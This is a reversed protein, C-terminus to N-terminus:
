EGLTLREKLYRHAAFIMSSLISLLVTERIINSFMQNNRKYTAEMLDRKIYVMRNQHWTRLVSIAFIAVLEFQGVTADPDQQIESKSKNFPWLLWFVQLMPNKKNKSSKSSSREGDTKGSSGRSKGSM